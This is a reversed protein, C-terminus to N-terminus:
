RRTTASEERLLVRAVQAIEQTVVTAQVEVAHTAVLVVEWLHAVVLSQQHLLPDSVVVRWLSAHEQRLPLVQAHHTDVQLVVGVHHM